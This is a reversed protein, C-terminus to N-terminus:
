TRASRYTAASSDDFVNRPHTNSSNPVASAIHNLFLLASAPTALLYNRFSWHCAAAVPHMPSALWGRVPLSTGSPTSDRPIEPSWSELDMTELADRLHQRNEIWVPESKANASYWFPRQPNEVKPLAAPDVALSVSSREEILQHVRRFRQWGINEDTSQLKSRQIEAEAMKKLRQDWSAGVEVATKVANQFSLAGSWVSASLLGTGIVHFEFPRGASRVSLWDMLSSQILLNEVMRPETSYYDYAAGFRKLTKSVAEPNLTGENLWTERVAKIASDFYRDLIHRTHFTFVDWGLLKAVLMIRHRITALSDLENLWGLAFVEGPMLNYLAPVVVTVPRRNPTRSQLRQLGHLASAKWQFGKRSPTPVAYTRPKWGYQRGAGQTEPPNAIGNEKNGELRM